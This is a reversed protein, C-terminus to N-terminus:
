LYFHICLLPDATKAAFYLEEVQAIEIEAFLFVATIAGVGLDELTEFGDLFLVLTGLLVQGLLVVLVLFPILIFVTAVIVILVFLVSDECLSLGLGQPRKRFPARGRNEAPLV